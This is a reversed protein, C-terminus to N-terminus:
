ITEPWSAVFIALRDVGRQLEASQNGIAKLLVKTAESQKLVKTELQKLVKTEL